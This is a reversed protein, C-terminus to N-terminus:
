KVIKQGELPPGPLHFLRSTKTETEGGNWAKGLPDSMMEVQDVFALFQTKRLSDVQNGLSPLNLENLLPWSLTRGM